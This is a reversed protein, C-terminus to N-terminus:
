NLPYPRFVPNNKEFVLIIPAPKADPFEIRVIEDMAKDHLNGEKEFEIWFSRIERIRINKIIRDEKLYLTGKGLSDASIVTQANARQFLFLSVVIVLFSQIRCLAYKKM